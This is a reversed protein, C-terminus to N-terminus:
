TSYHRLSQRSLLWTDQSNHQGWSASSITYSDTQTNVMIACWLWQVYLSTIRSTGFLESWLRFVLDTQGLKSRKHTM